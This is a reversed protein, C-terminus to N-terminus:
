VGPFHKSRQFNMPNVISIVNITNSTPRYHATEASPLQHPHFDESYPAQCCAYGHVTEPLLV